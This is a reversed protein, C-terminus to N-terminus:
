RRTPHALIPDHRITGDLYATLASDITQTRTLVIQIGESRIRQALPAGIGNAILVECDDLASVIFDPRLDSGAECMPINAMDRIDRRADGDDDLEIVVLATMKGFHRSIMETDRTPFAIKM